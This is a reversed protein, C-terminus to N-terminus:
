HKGLERLIANVKRKLDPLDHEVAAWVEELDIGFYNHVLVHRMKIIQPWPVETHAKRFSESLKGAAEGIIQIHHIVWSQILENAQFAKRGRKAYREVRKIAELIDELRVRDDRM